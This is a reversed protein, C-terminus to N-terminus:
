MFCRVLEDSNAVRTVGNADTYVGCTNTEIKGMIVAVVPVAWVAGPIDEGCLGCNDDFTTYHNGLGQKILDEIGLENATKLQM